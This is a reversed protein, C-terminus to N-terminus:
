RPGGQATPVEPAGPTGAMFSMHVAALRWAASQNVVVLTVRLDAFPVESGAFISKQVQHATVVAVSDHIRTQVEELRLAENRFVGQEYRAMWAQKPLVFGLPGVATFDDTLLEDLRVLDGGLEAAVWQTLTEEIDRHDAM